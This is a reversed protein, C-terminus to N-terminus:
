RLIPLSALDTGQVFQGALWGAILGVLLIVFLESQCQKGGKEVQFRLPKQGVGLFRFADFGNLFFAMTVPSVCAAQGFLLWDQTAYNFKREIERSVFANKAGVDQFRV